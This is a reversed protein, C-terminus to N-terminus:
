VIALLSVDALLEMGANIQVALWYLESLGAMTTNIIAKQSAIVLIM